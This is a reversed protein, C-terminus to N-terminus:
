QAPGTPEAGPTDAAAGPGEGAGDGRAKRLFDALTANALSGVAADRANRVAQGLWGPLDDPEGPQGPRGALDLVDVVPLKAPAARPVFAPPRVNEVRCIIEGALLRDLLMQASATPLRLSRAVDELRAPGEGSAYRGAVALAAALLDWPGLVAQDPREGITVDDLTEASHAIEAGFLFLYWSLNVWLLFLPLLGLSGYLSGKGVLDRVYIGFGWKAVAWIPYAVLAGGLAARLGVRQNPMLTYLGVLLLIGVLPPQIWGVAALLWGFDGAGVMRMARDSAYIAVMAALPGLTMASWYLIVRRPLSRHKPAGFIRNLSREMTTLLTLATWILVGMGIPGLKGFTLKSEAHAVVKRIEGAVDLVKAPRSSPQSAPGSAPATAPQTELGTRDMLAIEAFGSRKLLEDLAKKGEDLGGFSRVVVLGLVIAPVLAFITRFSLAASMALANHERLRRMCLYWLRIQFRLFRAGRGLEQGPSGLIRAVSGRIANLWRM